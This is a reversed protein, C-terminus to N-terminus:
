ASAEPAAGALGDPEAESGQDADSRFLAPEKKCWGGCDEALKVGLESYESVSTDNVIAAMLSHVHIHIHIYIYM